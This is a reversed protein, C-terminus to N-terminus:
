TWNPCLGAYSLWSQKWGHLTQISVIFLNVSGAKRSWVKSGDTFRRFPFMEMLINATTMPSNHLKAEMRSADSHFSFFVRFPVMCDRSQKWGHLTQISVNSWSSFGFGHGGKSGDTFRRFPFTKLSDSRFVFCSRQKWGHLTQISVDMFGFIIWHNRFKAEMRSADSHFSRLIYHMVRLLFPVKSGDTFHRFPFMRCYDLTNFGYGGKAEMRSADSHFSSAVVLTPFRKSCKAEM